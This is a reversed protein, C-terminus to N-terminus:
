RRRGWVLAILVSGVGSLVLWLTSPDALQIRGGLVCAVVVVVFAVIAIGRLWAPPDGRYFRPAGRVDVCIM